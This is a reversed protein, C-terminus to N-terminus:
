LSGVNTKGLLIKLEQYTKRNDATCPHRFPIIWAKRREDRIPGQSPKEAKVKLDFLWILIDIIGCAVIVDPKISDIQELLLDRDQHAYANIVSIDAKATGTAKKLNVAAIQSLSAKMVAINDIEEFPPFDRKLLGASWRAVTHWMQGKPGDKLMVPLSGGPFDNVEKLVFLVKVLVDKYKAPDIIGDRCIAKTNIDLNKYHAEWRNWISDPTFLGTNKSM